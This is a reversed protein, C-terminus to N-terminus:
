TGPGGGPSSPAREGGQEGWEAAPSGPLPEKPIPDGAGVGGAQGAGSCAAAVFLLASMLGLIVRTM